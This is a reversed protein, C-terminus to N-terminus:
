GSKVREILYSGAPDGPEIAPGSDGGARMLRVLRLDLGGELQEGTGHCDFCYTRFLPRVHEEFTVKGPTEQGAAAPTLVALLLITLWLRQPFMGRMPCE